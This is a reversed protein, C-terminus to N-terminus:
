ITIETIAEESFTVSLAVPGNNGQASATYTGPTYIGQGVTEAVTTEATITENATTETEPVTTTEPATTEGNGSCGSLLLTLCLLIAAVKKM